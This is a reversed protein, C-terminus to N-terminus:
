SDHEHLHRVCAAFWTLCVFAALWALCILAAFWAMLMHCHVDVLALVRRSGVIALQLLKSYQYTVDEAASVQDLTNITPSLGGHM